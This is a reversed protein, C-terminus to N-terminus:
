GDVRQKVIWQSAIRSDMSGSNSLGNVRSEVIWQGATQCDQSVLVRGHGRCQQGRPNGILVVDDPLAAAHEPLLSLRDRRAHRLQWSHGKGKRVSAALARSRQLGVNRLTLLLLCLHARVGCGSM